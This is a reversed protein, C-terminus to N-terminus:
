NDSLLSYNGFINEELISIKKAFIYTCIGYPYTFNAHTIIYQLLLLGVAFVCCRLESRNLFQLIGNMENVMDVKYDETRLVHFQDLPFASLWDRFYVSYLGITLRVQLM